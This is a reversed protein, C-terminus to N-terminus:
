LVATTNSRYVFLHCPAAIVTHPSPQHFLCLAPWSKATLVSAMGWVTSECLRNDLTVDLCTYIWGEDAKEHRHQGTGAAVGTGAAIAPDKDATMAVPSVCVTGTLAGCDSALLTQASGSCAVTQCAPAPVVVCRALSSEPGPLFFFYRM